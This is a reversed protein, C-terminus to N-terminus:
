GPAPSLFIRQRSDASKPEEGPRLPIDQTASVSLNGARRSYPHRDLWVTLWGFAPDMSTVNITTTFRRMLWHWAYGPVRRLSAAIGGLVMLIAGGSFFQNQSLATSIAQWLHDFM